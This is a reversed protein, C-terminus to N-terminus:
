RNDAYSKALYSCYECGWHSQGRASCAAAMRDLDVQLLRERERKTVERM